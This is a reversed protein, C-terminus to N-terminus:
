GSVAKPRARRTGRLDIARVYAAEYQRAPDRWSSDRAMGRAQIARFRPGDALAAM